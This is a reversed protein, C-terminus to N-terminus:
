INVKLHDKVDFIYRVFMNTSTGVVVDNVDIEAFTDLGEFVLNVHEKKLIEKNVLFIYM